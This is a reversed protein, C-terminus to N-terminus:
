YPNLIGKKLIVYIKFDEHNTQLCQLSHTFIDFLQYPYPFSFFACSYFYDILQEIDIKLLSM